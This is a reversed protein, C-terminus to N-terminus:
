QKCYTKTKMHLHVWEQAADRRAGGCAAPVSRARQWGRGAGESLSFSPVFQGVAQAAVLPLLGREGLQLQWGLDRMSVRHGTLCGRCLLVWTCTPEEM